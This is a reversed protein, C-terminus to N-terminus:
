PLPISSYDEGLTKYGSVGSVPRVTRVLVVLPQNSEIVVSGTFRGASTAGAASPTSTRMGQKPLVKTATALNQTAVLSGSADYFSLVVSSASASGANMIFLTSKYGDADAWRVYPLILSTAPQSPTTHSQLGDNSTTKTVVAVPVRPGTYLGNSTAYVRAAGSRGSMASLTCSSYTARRNPQLKNSRTAAISTRARLKGTSDYFEIFVTANSTGTNQVSFTTTQRTTGYNCMASAVYHQDSGGAVGEFASARRGTTQMEIASALIDAPTSDSTKTAEIVLSGDFSSPLAPTTADRTPDFLKSGNAPVTFSATYTAANLTPTYFTLLLSIEEDEMNQIGVQTFASSKKLFTPIYNTSGAEDASFSTYLIPSFNIDGQSVFQKYVAYVPITSSLVASGSFDPDAGSSGILLEGAGHANVPITASSYTTAADQSTYSVILEGPNASPNAYAIASTWAAGPTSQASAVQFLLAAAAFLLFLSQLTIKRM